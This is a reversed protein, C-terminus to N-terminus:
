KKTDMIDEIVFPCSRTGKTIAPKKIVIIKM